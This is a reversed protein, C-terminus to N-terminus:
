KDFKNEEEEEGEARAGNRKRSKTIDSAWVNMPDRWECVRHVCLRRESLLWVANKADRKTVYVIFMFILRRVDSVWESVWDLSRAREGFNFPM